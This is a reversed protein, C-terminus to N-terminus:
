RRGAGSVSGSELAELVLNTSCEIQPHVSQYVPCFRAHMGHVREVTARDVDSHVQLHYTVRIRKIVLM